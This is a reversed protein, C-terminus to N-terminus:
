VCLSDCSSAGQSSFLKLHVGHSKSAHTFSTNKAADIPLIRKDMDTKKREVKCHSPSRICDWTHTPPACVQNNQERCESAGGDDERARKTHLVASRKAAQQHCNQQVGCKFMELATAIIHRKMFDGFKNYLIAEIDLVNATCTPLYLGKFIPSCYDPILYGRQIVIMGACYVHTLQSLGPTRAIQSMMKCTECAGCSGRQRLEACEVPLIPLVQTVNFRCICDCENCATGVSIPATDEHVILVCCIRANLGMYVTHADSEFGGSKCGLHRFYCKM